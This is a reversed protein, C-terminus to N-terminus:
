ASRTAGNPLRYLGASVRLFLETNRAPNGVANSALFVRYSKDAWGPCARKVAEPGFPEALRGDQVAAYIQSAFEKM